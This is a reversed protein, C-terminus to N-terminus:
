GEPISVATPLDFICVARLGVAKFYEQLLRSIGAGTQSQYAGNRELQARSQTYLKKQFVTYLDARSAFLLGERSTADMRDLRLEFSLLRPPPLHIEVISDRRVIRVASDGLDVGYKATYPVSLHVTKEAFFKKMADTFSGDNAVNTATFTSVGAVELSALEAIERVFSYNEILESRTDNKGMRHGLQYGGYVLAIIILLAIALSLIKSM